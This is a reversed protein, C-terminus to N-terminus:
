VLQNNNKEWAIIWNSVLQLMTKEADNDIYKALGRLSPPIHFKRLRLVFVAPIISFVFFIISLFVLKKEFVPLMLIETKANILIGFVVGVFGILVGAKNQLSELNQKQLTVADRALDFIIETNRFSKDTNAM